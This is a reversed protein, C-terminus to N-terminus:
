PQRELEDILYQIGICASDFGVYYDDHVDYAHRDMQQLRDRLQTLLRQKTLGAHREACTACRRCDHDKAGEDGAQEITTM